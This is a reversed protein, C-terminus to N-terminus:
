ILSMLLSELKTKDDSKSLVNLAGFKKLKTIENEDSV